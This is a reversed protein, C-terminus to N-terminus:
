SHNTMCGQRLFYPEGYSHHFWPRHVSRHLRQWMILFCCFMVEKSSHLKFLAEKYELEELYAELAEIDSSSVELKAQHCHSRALSACGSLNLRFLDALM